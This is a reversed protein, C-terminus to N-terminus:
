AEFITNSSWPQYTATVQLLPRQQITRSRVAAEPGPAAHAAPVLGAMVSEVRIRHVAGRAGHYSRAIEAFRPRRPSARRGV